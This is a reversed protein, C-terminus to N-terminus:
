ELGAESMNDWVYGFNDDFMKKSEGRLQRYLALLKSGDDDEDDIWKEYSDIVLQILQFDYSEKNVKILEDSNTDNLSPQFNKMLEASSATFDFDALDDRKNTSVEIIFYTHPYEQMESNVLLNDEIYYNELLDYKQKLSELAPVCVYKGSVFPREHDNLRFELTHSPALEDHDIQGCIVSTAVNFVRDIIVFYPSVAQILGLGATIKEMFEAFKSPSDLEWMKTTITLVTGQYGPTHFFVPHGYKSTDFPGVSFTELGNIKKPKVDNDSYVINEMSREKKQANRIHSVIMVESKGFTDFKPSCIHIRRYEMTVPQAIDIQNEKTSVKQTWDVPVHDGPQGDTSPICYFTNMQIMSINM